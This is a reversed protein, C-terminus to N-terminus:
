RRSYKKINNIIRNTQIMSTLFAIIVGITNMIIIIRVVRSEM